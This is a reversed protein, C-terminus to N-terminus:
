CTQLSYSTRPLILIGLLTDCGHRLQRQTLLELQPDGQLHNRGQSVAVWPSLGPTGELLPQLCSSYLPSLFPLTRSFELPPTLPNNTGTHTHAHTHSLESIWICFSNSNTVM